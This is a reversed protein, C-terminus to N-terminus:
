FNIFYLLYSIMYFLFLKSFKTLDNSFDQIDHKKFYIDELDNQHGHIRAQLDTALPIDSKPLSSFDTKLISLENQLKLIMMSKRDIVSKLFFELLNNELGNGKLNEQSINEQSSLIQDLIHNPYVDSEYLELECVPCKSTNKLHSLICEKSYKM